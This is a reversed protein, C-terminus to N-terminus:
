WLGRFAGMSALRKMEKQFKHGHFSGTENRLKLHVMEHLLTFKWQRGAKRTWRGLEIVHQDPQFTKDRIATQAEKKTKYTKNYVPYYMGFMKTDTWVVKCKPLSGRFYRSNFLHFLEEPKTM